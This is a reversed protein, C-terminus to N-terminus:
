LTVKGIGPIPVQRGTIFAVLAVLAVVNIIFVIIHRTHRIHRPPISFYDVKGIIVKDGELLASGAQFILAAERSIHSFSQRCSLDREEQSFSCCSPFAIMFRMLSPSNAGAWRVFDGNDARCPVANIFCRSFLSAAHHERSTDM